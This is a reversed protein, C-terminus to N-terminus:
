TSKERSNGRNMWTHISHSRVQNELM